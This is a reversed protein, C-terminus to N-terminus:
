FPTDDDGDEDDTEDEDMVYAARKVPAPGGTFLDYGLYRSVDDRHQSYADAVKSVESLLRGMKVEGQEHVLKEIALRCADEAGALYRYAIPNRTKITKHISGDPAIGYFARMQATNRQFVAEFLTDQFARLNHSLHFNANARKLAAVLLALPSLPRTKGPLLSQTPTAGPLYIIPNSLSPTPTESKDSQTSESSHISPDDLNTIDYNM